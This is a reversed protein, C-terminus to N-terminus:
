NFTNMAARLGESCLVAVAERGRLSTEKALLGFHSPIPALVYDAADPVETGPSIGLRVRAFESTDIWEIISQLGKHGGSSGQGRIRIKGFPLALDDCVVILDDPSLDFEKLLLSVSQGSLNMYTQPKALLVGSEVILRHATLALGQRTSVDLGVESALLDIVSFGLSHPTNEYQTGPNGLGVVVKTINM